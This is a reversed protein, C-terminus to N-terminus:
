ASRESSLKDMEFLLDKISSLAVEYFRDDIKMGFVKMLLEEPRESGGAALFNHYKQIFAEKENSKKYSQVLNLSILNGFAYTYCYFPTQFIHPVSAWNYKVLESDIKVHKGYLAETEELWIKNFDEYTLPENRDFSEHCRREFRTFMIQRFITGFIDDLRSSIMSLKKKPSINAKMMADFMLTENFISATEALILPTSYVLSKQQKSLHGHFCHGLEHALTTVDSYTDTWNLLTFEKINSTYNAYAGGTKGKYPFVSIREDNMMELSFEYLESDVDKIANLYMNWGKEFSINGDEEGSEVPAFVDHISFDDIDLIEAKKQLFEHYIGYADSINKILDDVAENSMEESVNSSEMVTSYGRMEKEFVNDKCVLAYIIGFVIQNQPSAYKDAISRFAELRASRDKNERWSRVEESTMKKGQFEFEFSSSLEDFMNNDDAAAIKLLLKEEVESLAYKLSNAEFVLYNKYPAFHENASLRMLFDYGLEKYGEDIFTLKDDCEAWIKALRQMTKQVSQDQTYLSSVLGLYFSAKDSDNLDDLDKIFQLFEEDSLTRIKGDYKRNFADVKLVYTNVDETLHPDDVGNYFHRSLNWETNMNQKNASVFIIYKLREDVAEELKCQYVGHM